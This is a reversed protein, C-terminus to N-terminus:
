DATEVATNYGPAYGPNLKLPSSLELRQQRRPLYPTLALNKKTIKIDFHHTKYM